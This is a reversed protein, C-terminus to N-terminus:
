GFSRECDGSSDHRGRRARLLIRVFERSQINRAPNPKGIRCLRAIRRVRVHFRGYLRHVPAHHSHPPLISALARPSLSRRHEEALTEPVRFFCWALVTLGYLLLFGFTWQWPAVALIIQGVLPAALPAAMFVLMALSMVRAMARGSYRDRVLTVAIVRASAAGVGQLVRAALLASFDSALLSLAGGASYMVLGALLVNRRGFRDSLPGWILQGCGIAILYYVVVQQVTNEDALQYAERVLGLAPLMVDIAFATLAMLAGILWVFEIFGPGARADERAQSDASM